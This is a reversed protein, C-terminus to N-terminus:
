KRDPKRAALLPDWEEAKSGEEGGAKLLSVESGSSGAATAPQDRMAISLKVYNYWCVALFSIGYGIINLKTLPSGYLLVSLGILMWDKVVGAINMTLASTKGILLFVSLNLGFATLCNLLLIWPNFKIATDAMLIPLEYLGFPIALFVFCCPAIYYLSTIPNLKIGRSQLLLQVLTLRTSETLIAAMQMLVGVLVFDIEGFSAIVVGVSIVVMNVLKSWQFQETEMVTGISFVAVPMLAKLIQIFSVSLHLYAANGLWLTVSFLLGIPVVARLYTEKDMEGPQAVGLQILLFAAVSSFGMHMMTLSIPYHFGSYALVYKNFLIVSGSLFIWLLVYSYVAVGRLIQSTTPM